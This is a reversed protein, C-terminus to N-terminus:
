KIDLKALLNLKLEIFFTVSGPYKFDPLAGKDSEVGAGDIYLGPCFININVNKAKRNGINISSYLVDYKEELM